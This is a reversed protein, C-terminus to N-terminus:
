RFLEGDWCGGCATQGQAPITDKSANAERGRGYGEIGEIGCGAVDRVRGLRTVRGGGPSGKVRLWM